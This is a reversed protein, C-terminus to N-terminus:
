RIVGVGSPGTATITFTSGPGLEITDRGGILVTGAGAGAGVGAGIAAGSGGGAVAGIIAGLVAGIGARTVTQTTRSSDRVTGENNVSVSDGNASIVSDVIGAFRYSQGNMRVTDFDLQVNARGTVRGSSAAEVVRGELMAGRYTGPSTIEMSFRDGVQSARTNITSNLTATIRTGSPIYFDNINGATTGGGIVPGGTNVTSWQAVNDVRDYVSSVTVTETGNELYIRRTVKLQDRGSPAFTVYFDNMRDGEYNITLGTTNTTATTTVTRGRPNTESHATGDAEFTVQPSNTSAMSVTRGNKDIAIMEPSTLRRELARRTRDRQDVSIRNLARDITNTVNDSLSTNLRYTGTLRRDISGVGGGYGGGPFTPGQQSWNWSVRYYTALTNLDNRISSWQNTANRNFQSRAMLQDINRARTLVETADAETSQRTNFRDRLRDTAEEFRAIYSNINDETNTNNVTSRDLNREMQRKYVDTKSEIQALLNRLQTETGTYAPYGGGATTIPGTQNWDWNMGYYGALTNLDRRIGVWSSAGSAVRNRNIFRDIQAAKTLLDNLENGMVERSTFRTRVNDTASEFDAILDMIRDERNANMSGRDVFSQMQSRFTNTNTDIRTLITQVQRNTAQLRPNQAAAPSVTLFMVFAYVLTITSLIRQKM